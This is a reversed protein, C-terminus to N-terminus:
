LDMFSSESGCAKLFSGDWRLAGYCRESSRLGRGDLQDACRIEKLEGNRDGDAQKAQIGTRGQGRNRTHQDLNTQHKRQHRKGVPRPSVEFSYLPIKFM